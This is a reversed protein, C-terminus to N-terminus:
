TVIENLWRLVIQQIKGKPNDWNFSYYLFGALDGRDYPFRDDVLYLVKKGMANMWGLDFAVTSNLEPRYREELVAICCSCGLRFLESQETLTPYYISEEWPIRPKMGCELVARKIEEILERLIKANKSDEDPFKTLIYVSKDYPAVNQFVELKERHHVHHPLFALPDEIPRSLRQLARGLDAAVTVALDSDSVFSATTHSNRLRDKFRELLQRKKEDTEIDKPLVRVEDSLIYVLCLKGLRQSEDYEVETFSLEKNPVLAGYKHGIIVVLIDSKRVESLCTEIPISNRAGFFEMSDHQLGLKNIATIVAQRETALDSFTSCVFIRFTDKM